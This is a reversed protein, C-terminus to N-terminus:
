WGSRRAGGGEEPFAVSEPTGEAVPNRSLRQHTPVEERSGPTRHRDLAAASRRRALAKRKAGGAASDVLVIRDPQHHGTESAVGSRYGLAAGDANRGVRGGPEPCRKSQNKGTASLNEPPASSRHCESQHGPAPPPAPPLRPTSYLGPFRKIAFPSPKVRTHRSPDLRRSRIGDASSLVLRVLHVGLGSCYCTGLLNQSLNQTHRLHALLM